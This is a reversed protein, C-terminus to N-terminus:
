NRIAIAESILNAKENTAEASLTTGILNRNEYPDVVLNYLEEDGNDYKMLKYTANRIAYGDVIETYVFSRGDNTASTLQPYFSKSNHIESVSVGTINAITAFLDTTQILADEREGARTVDVGSVIMPVNVGGQYLTGKVTLRSYPNQAVKGPTGNDGIFIIVTNAREESSLNSLFRGLETDMAEIASMYYPIPNANISAEDTPLNGQSHLDTPALHFPTHPANYAMWLFWPKTQDDVWNIAIDTLKTTTYTRSNSATGNENFNWNFYDGVGGNVIGAFYDIGMTIPDTASNSLHWKGIIATAYDNNTNSNIYSQLSTEATSIPDGVDIVNTNVGYKGTLISARTPTCVPYSWFNDFTIGSNMLSQLTPMNPKITGESFNPTADKGMDDAIVLLINPKTVEVGGSDIPTELPSSCSLCFLSFLFLSYQKM